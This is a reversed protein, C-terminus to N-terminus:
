KKLLADRLARLARGRHSIADKEADSLEGYTQDGVLFLPDYGFGGTGRQEHAITGPCEGQVEIARGDPFLCCIASVFKAGRRGDPVNQMERLLKACRDADTADPGAWRASYVGPAGNLADVMLGSDDAVAIMGTAARASEAKLRANEAFTAGTEDVEPLDFGAEAATQVAFGLPALIRALEACKKRNHTALIITEM